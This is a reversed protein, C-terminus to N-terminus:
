DKNTKKRQFFESRPNEIINSLNNLVERTICQNDILFSNEDTIEDTESLSALRMTYDSQKSLWEVFSNRTLFQQHEEFYGDYVTCYYYANDAFILGMGCYDRHGNGFVGSNELHNTVKNALDIGFPTKDHSDKHWAYKKYKKEM